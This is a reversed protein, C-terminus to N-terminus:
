MIKKKIDLVKMKMLDLGNQMCTLIDKDSWKEFHIPLDLLTVFAGLRINENKLRHRCIETFYFLNCM